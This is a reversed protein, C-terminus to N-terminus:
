MAPVFHLPTVRGAILYDADTKVVKAVTSALQMVFKGQLPPLTGCFGGEGEFKGEGGQLPHRPLSPASIGPLVRNAM